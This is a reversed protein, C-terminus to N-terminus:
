KCAGGSLPAISRVVDLTLFNYAPLSNEALALVVPWFITDYWGLAVFFVFM